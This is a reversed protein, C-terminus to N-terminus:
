KEVDENGGIFSKFYCLMEEFVSANIQYFIFNKDKEECILGADKLLSLHYSVTAQSMDFHSAIDGASMKGKKVRNQPAPAQEKQPSEPLFSKLFDIQQTIKTTDINICLAGILMHDADRIFLSSSRILKGRKRFYDNVAFDQAIDGASLMDKVLHEIGQGVKRGTVSGNVVYVVSHEPDALDHLIFECDQGFTAGLMDMLPVYSKLLPNM